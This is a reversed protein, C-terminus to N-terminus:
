VLNPPCCGTRAELIAQYIKMWIDSLLAWRSTCIVLWFNYRIMRAYTREYSQNQLLYASSGLTITILRAPCENFSVARAVKRRLPRTVFHM